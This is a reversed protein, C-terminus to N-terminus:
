WTRTAPTATGDTIAITFPEDTGDDCVKYELEEMVVGDVISRKPRSMLRCDNGTIVIKYTTSGEGINTATNWTLIVARATKATYDNEYKSNISSTGDWAYARKVKITISDYGVIDLASRAGKGLPQFGDATTAKLKIDVEADTISTSTGGLSATLHSAKFFPMTSLLTIAPTDANAVTSYTAGEYEIKWKLFKDQEQKLNCSVARCGSLKHTVTDCYESISVGPAQNMAYGAADYTTLTHTYSSDVVAGTTNQYLVEQLVHVINNHVPVPGSLTAKGSLMGLDSYNGSSSPLINGLPADVEHMKTTDQVIDVTEVPFWKQGAVYTDFSTEIAWGLLKKWRSELQRAVKTAM